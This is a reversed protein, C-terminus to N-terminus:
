KAGGLIVANIADSFAKTQLNVYHLKERYFAEMQEIQRDIEQAQERTSVINHELMQIKCLNSENEDKLHDILIAKEKDSMGSVKANILEEVTRTKQRPKRTKKPKEVAEVTEEPTEVVEITEVNTEPM